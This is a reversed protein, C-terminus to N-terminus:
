IEITAHRPDQPSSLTPFRQHHHRNPPSYAYTTSGYAAAPAAPSSYAAAAPPPPYGNPLGRSGGGGGGGGDDGPAAVVVATAPPPPPPYGYEARELASGIQTHRVPSKGGYGDTDKKGSEKKGDDIKELMPKTWCSCPFLVSFFVVLILPIQYMMAPIAIVLFFPFVVIAPFPIFADSITQCGAGICASVGACCGKQGRKGKKAVASFIKFIVIFSCLVSLGGMGM